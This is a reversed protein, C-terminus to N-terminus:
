AAVFPSAFATVAAYAGCDIDRNSFSAEHVTAAPPRTARGTTRMMAVEFHPASVGAPRYETGDTPAVHTRGPRYCLARAVEPEDCSAIAIILMFQQVSRTRWGLQGDADTSPTIAIFLSAV